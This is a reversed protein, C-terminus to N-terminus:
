AKKYWATHGILVGPNPRPPGPLLFDSWPMAEFGAGEAIPRADGDCVVLPRVGM